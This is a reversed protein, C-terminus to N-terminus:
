DELVENIILKIAQEHKAKSINSIDKVEKKNQLIRKEKYKSYEIISDEVLSQAKRRTNELSDMKSVRAEDLANEIIETKKRTANLHMKKRESEITEIFEIIEDM